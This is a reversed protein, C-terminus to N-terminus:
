GQRGGLVVGQTLYRQTFFFLLLCPAITMLSAAMVLNWQPVAFRDNFLMLGLSLPWNRTSTLYILPQLFDNWYFMFSFIGVALLGPKALPLMVHWFIQYTNAGDVRAADEYETPLSLFFQRMLFISFASQGLFAPVIIPLFTNIWGLHRFLIFQPIITVQPPLMMTAVVLIFLFTRGPFRLRAFGYGVVASSFLVGLMGGATLILTNRLFHMFRMQDLARSYNEWEPPDPIWQPPFVLVEHPLKLSTSLMWALPSGLMIALLSLVM